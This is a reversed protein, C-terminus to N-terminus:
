RARWPRNACVLALLALLAIVGVITVWFGMLIDRPAYTWTLEYRGKQIDISQILGFRHM